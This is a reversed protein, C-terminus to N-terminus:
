MQENVSVDTLDRPVLIEIWSTGLEGCDNTTDETLQIEHSKGESSLILVHRGVDNLQPIGALRFNKHRDRPDSTDYDAEAPALSM